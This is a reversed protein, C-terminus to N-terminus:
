FSQGNSGGARMAALLGSLDRELANCTIQGIPHLKLRTNTAISITQTEAAHDRLPIFRVEGAIIETAADLESTLAVYEGGAVLAKLLQLSNTVVPMRGKQFMWDNHAEIYRRITLARSQLVVPLSAVDQLTVATAGALPHDRAVLCGLPLSSTWAVHIERHPQLNFAIAVDAQANVLASGAADPTVIEIELTIGPHERRLRRITRPLIGNAMSDMAVIRLHGRNEGDLYKIESGMWGLETRWRRALTAVLTGASTPRMGRPLREFLAIGLEDELLLIQRNIASASINLDRAAAQISGCRVVQDMYKLSTPLLRESM